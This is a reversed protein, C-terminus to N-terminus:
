RVPTGRRRPRFALVASSGAAIPLRILAHLLSEYQTEWDTPVPGEAARAREAAKRSEERTEAKKSNTEDNQVASDDPVPLAQAMAISHLPLTSFVSLSFFVAAVCRGFSSRM